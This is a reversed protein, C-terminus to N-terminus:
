EFAYDQLGSQPIEKQEGTRLDRVVCTKNALERSGLIVAFPIMKKEAYKFQKEFKASEHYLECAHGKKRLHQMLEFAVRSESEGMHFFLVQTTVHLELPFRQLTEMVDYIRDLGFSIGVGPLGPVGFLGTLDDYRGGGGISGMQAEKARVELITGTYYNLGRALSFDVTLNQTGQGFYGLVQSIEEVGKKAEPYKGLLDDLSALREKNSGQIALYAEIKELQGSDLGQLTLEKKVLDLGAKDLKDIATTIATLRDPSGCAAALATLIQRHNIKIEVELKLM